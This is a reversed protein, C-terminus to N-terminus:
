SSNSAPYPSYKPIALALLSSSGGQACYFRWGVGGRIKERAGGSHVGAKSRLCDNGRLIRTPCKRPGVRRTAVLGSEGAYFPSYPEDGGEVDPGRRGLARSTGSVEGMRRSSRRLDTLRLPLLHRRFSTGDGVQESQSATTGADAAGAAPNQVAGAELQVERVTVVTGDGGELISLVFGRCKPMKWIWTAIATGEGVGSHLPCTDFNDLPQFRKTWAGVPDLKLLAARAVRYREIDLEKKSQSAAIASRIRTNAAVGTGATHQKQHEFLAKYRRLHRRLSHLAEEMQALRLRVYKKIFDIPLQKRFSPSLASPLFLETDTTIIAESAEDAPEHGRITGVMPMYISQLKLWMITKRRLSLEKDEIALTLM